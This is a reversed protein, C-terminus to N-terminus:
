LTVRTGTEASKYIAEVIAIDKMGEEGPVLVPKDNAIAIADDDMQRAQQNTISLNLNLGDSTVGKVGNYAQFPKLEYWGDVCDAKLYNLSEAFSTQCKALAGSPFELDFYTIEDVERYIDKRTTEHHATV